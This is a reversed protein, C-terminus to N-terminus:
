MQSILFDIYLDQLNETVISRPKGDICSFIDMAGVVFKWPSCKMLNNLECTAYFSRYLDIDMDDVFDEHNFLQWMNM